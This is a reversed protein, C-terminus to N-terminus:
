HLLTPLHKSVRTLPLKRYPISNRELEDIYAESDREPVIAVTDVIGKLASGIDVIRRQPGGFRGEELVNAVKIM